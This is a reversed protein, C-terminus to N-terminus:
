GEKAEWIVELGDKQCKGLKELKELKERKRSNLGLNLTNKGEKGMFKM